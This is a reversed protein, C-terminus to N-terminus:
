KLNNAGSSRDTSSDAIKDSLIDEFSGKHVVRYGCGDELEAGLKFISRHPYTRCIEPRSKHVTCSMDKGQHICNFRM